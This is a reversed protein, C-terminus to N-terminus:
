CVELARWEGRFPFMMVVTNEVISSGFTKAKHTRITPFDIEVDGFASSTILSKATGFEVSFDYVVRLCNEFVDDLSIVRFLPGLGALFSDSVCGLRDGVQYTIAEDHVVRYVPGNQATGKKGEPVERPGNVLIVSRVSSSNIPRKTRFYNFSGSVNKSNYVELLGYPPVTETSDNIFVLPESNDLTPYNPRSSGISAEYAETAAWIRAGQSPNFAALRRTM